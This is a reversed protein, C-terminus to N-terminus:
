SPVPTEQSGAPRAVDARLVVGDPMVTELTEFVIPAATQTM